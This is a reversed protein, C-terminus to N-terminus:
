RLEQWTLQEALTGGPLNLRAIGPSKGSGTNVLGYTHNEYTVFASSGVAGFSIGSTTVKEGGFSVGEFKGNNFPDFVEFPLRGGSAPDLAMTWGTLSAAQCSLGSSSSPITTNVLFVGARLVPSYVVKEGQRDKAPAVLNMRWGYNDNTDCGKIAASVDVWCVPNQSVVRNDNQGGTITNTIQEDSVTQEALDADTFDSGSPGNTLSAYQFQPAVGKVGTNWANFDWDWVGYLSQVGTETTNPAQQAETVDSGTGFEVMVRPGAGAGPVTMVLVKTTIPQDTKDGDAGATTFMPQGAVGAYGVKWNGPNTSTLDFRWVNGFYDGAYVYDTTRDGDLDAATVFAIGDPRHRGTPDQVPGYGTSIEYFTVNKGNVLGVYIAATGNASNFGNGFVFGWRTQGNDNFRAIVPTGYTLGLDEGCKANNACAINGPGWEGIVTAAPSGGFNAPDTIDLAYISSGGAAEGGVLWTRWRTGDFLDSSGPTANVFYHHTYIQEAYDHLNPYVARPVYALLEKGADAASAAAPAYFAHLMGDNAGVYVVPKRHAQAAVFGSYKQSANNEPSTEGPHLFDAWTDPYNADPQGVYVPSSSVVDGMVSTRKRLSGGSGAEKTRVGRIYNVINAGGIASLAAPPLSAPEFPKAGDDWTLIHRDAPSQVIVTHLPQGSPTEGMQPCGGGTLVCSAAWDAQDSVSVIASHKSTAPTALVPLALVDGWWNLPHFLAQYVQQRVRTQGTKETNVSLSSASGTRHVINVLAASIANYLQTPNTASTFEGHGNVAAHWTDDIKQAVSEDGGNCNNANGSGRGSGCPSPWDTDGDVISQFVTQQATEKGAGPHAEMYNEVRTPLVGLGVTFTVLHQWFASDSPNTPVNNNLNPQLDRNWYNMAVDALTNSVDDKYPPAPQYRVQIGGAGTIVSPAKTNDVNGVNVTDNTWEGDTALIVYNARCSLPTAGDNETEDASNGWPAKDAQATQRFWEGVSQLAERNPTGDKFIPQTYLKHLFQYRLGTTGSQQTFDETSTIEAGGANNDMTNIVGYDVRFGAPVQMFAIGIGAQAALIHSRYYQYWNAFNRLAETPTRVIKTGDGKVYVYNGNADTYTHYKAPSAPLEDPPTCTSTSVIGPCIQIRQYNGIAEYNCSRDGGSGTCQGPMPGFYNFYTAPWFGGAPEGKIVTITETASKTDGCFIWFCNRYTYGFSDQGVFGADPTYTYRGNSDLTLKGHAPGSGPVLAFHSYGCGLYDCGGNLNGRVLQGECTKRGGKYDSPDCGEGGSHGVYGNEPTQNSADKSDNWVEVDRFGANKNAPNLYAKAPDANDMVWLNKGSDWHCSFGDLPSVADTETQAESEPYPAACAWPTYTLSPDYYNPNVYAARYQAAQISDAGFGPACTGCYTGSGNNYPSSYGLPFGYDDQFTGRAGLYEFQMSGSDDLLLFLNPAISKQAYVSPVQSIDLATAATGSAPAAWASVGFCLVALPALRAWAMGRWQGLQGLIFFKKGKRM